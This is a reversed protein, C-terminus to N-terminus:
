LGATLAAHLTSDAVATSGIANLKREQLSSARKPKQNKRRPQFALNQIGLRLEQRARAVSFQSLAAMLLLTSANSVTAAM